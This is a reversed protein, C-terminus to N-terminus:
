IEGRCKTEYNSILLHGYETGSLVSLVITTEMVVVFHDAPQPVNQVLVEISLLPTEEELNQGNQRFTFERMRNWTVGFHCEGIETQSWNNWVEVAQSQEDQVEM